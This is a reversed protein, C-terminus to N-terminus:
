WAEALAKAKAKDPGRRAALDDFFTRLEAAKAQDVASVRTVLDDFMMSESGVPQGSAYLNLLAKAEAVPDPTFPLERDRVGGSCGTVMCAAMIIFAVLGGIWTM